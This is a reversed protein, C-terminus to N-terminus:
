SSKRKKPLWPDVIMTAMSGLVAGNVAFIWFSSLSPVPLGHGFAYASWVGVSITAMLAGRWVGARLSILVDYAIDLQDQVWYPVDPGMRHDRRRIREFMEAFRQGATPQTPNTSMVAGGGEKEVHKACDDPSGLFEDGDESRIMVYRGTHLGDVVDGWPTQIALHPTATKPPPTLSRCVSAVAEVFTLTIWKTPQTPESAVSLRGM